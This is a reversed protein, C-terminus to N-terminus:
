ARRGAAGDIVSWCRGNSARPWSRSPWARMIPPRDEGLERMEGLVAVHRGPEEALVALTARMSAPNANYSEDIVLAGNAM